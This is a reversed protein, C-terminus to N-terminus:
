PVNINVHERLTKIISELEINRYESAEIKKNM